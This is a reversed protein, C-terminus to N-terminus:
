KWYPQATPAYQKRLPYRYWVYYGIADTLHTLDRDAKDDIEGSGGEVLVVGEFDRVVHPARAPDVMLRIHGDISKLVANVSNVRDRERPPASQVHVDVRRAGFHAWLIKKILQWDSGETKATGGAGGTPDGYCEVLGEHRGWDHILRRCVIPTDSNRPIWVEGVVGIGVQGSPLLQEQLVAAVGPARNFDFCFVLPKRADYALAACHTKEDFPYYARGSFNVFSANFEQDFSLEDLDRRAAAIEEAPLIDGSVWHFAGWESAGSAARAELERAQAAKWLEYYHNRGEPVGIFDCWGNRDALCPRVHKPWTDPKMNAYEDLIGGDWPAGEIREPRDMGIVVIRVGNVLNITLSSENPRGWYMFSPILEKLDQWYIREAQGYTPAAAFFRAGEYPRFFEPLDARHANLARLVLRRKALETKGSRRGAPVINFRATSGFYRVQEAHPRLPTWRPSLAPASARQESM